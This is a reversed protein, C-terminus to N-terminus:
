SVAPGEPAALGEQDGVALLRVIGAQGRLHWHDWETPLYRDIKTRKYSPSEFPRCSRMYIRDGYLKQQGLCQGTWGVSVCLGHVSAYLVAARRSM